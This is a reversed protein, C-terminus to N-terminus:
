ANSAIQNVSLSLFNALQHHLATLPLRLRATFMTDYMGVDITKGSYCKKFKGLLHLPINDPIQHRDRFTNFVKNTM